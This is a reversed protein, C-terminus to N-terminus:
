QDEHIEQMNLIHSLRLNRIQSESHNKDEIEQKKSLTKMGEVVIVACDETGESTLGNKWKVDFEVSRGKKRYITTALHTAHNEMDKKTEDNVTNQGYVTLTKTMCDAKVLNLHPREGDDTPNEIPFVLSHFGQTLNSNMANKFEQSQPNQALKKADQTNLICVGRRQFNKQNDILADVVHSGYPNGPGM